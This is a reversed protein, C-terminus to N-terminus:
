RFNQFSATLPVLVRKQLSPKFVKEGRLPVLELVVCESVNEHHYHYLRNSQIGEVRLNTTNIDGTM